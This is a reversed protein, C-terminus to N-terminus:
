RSSNKIDNVTVESFVRPSIKSLADKLVFRLGAEDTEANIQTKISSLKSSDLEGNHRIIWGGGAKKHAEIM